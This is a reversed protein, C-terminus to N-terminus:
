IGRETKIRILEEVLRCCEKYKEVYKLHENKCFKAYATGDKEHLLYLREFGEAISRYSYRERQTIELDKLVQENSVKKIM